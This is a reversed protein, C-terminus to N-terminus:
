FRMETEKILEKPDLCAFWWAFPSSLGIRSSIQIPMLHHLSKWSDCTLLIKMGIKDKQQKLPSFVTELLFWGKEWRSIVHVLFILFLDLNSECVACGLYLLNAEGVGLSQIECDLTRCKRNLPDDEGMGLM